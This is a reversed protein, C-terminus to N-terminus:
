VRITVIKWIWLFGLAELVLAGALMMQGVQLKVLPEIFSPDNPAAMRSVLHLMFGLVIPLLALVGGTLRGQATLTRIEGKIRM